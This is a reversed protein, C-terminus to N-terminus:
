RGPETWRLTLIAERPQPEGDTASPTDLELGGPLPLRGWPRAIWRAIQELDNATLRVSQGRRVQRIPAIAGAPQGRRFAQRCKLVLRATVPTSALNVYTTFPTIGDMMPLPFYVILETDDTVTLGGDETPETRTVWYYPTLGDTPMYQGDLPGGVFLHPRHNTPSQM